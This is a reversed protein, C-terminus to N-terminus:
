RPESVLPPPALLAWLKWIADLPCDTQWEAIMGAM